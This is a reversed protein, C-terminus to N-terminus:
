PWCVHDGHRLGTPTEWQRLRAPCQPRDSPVRARTGTRCRVSLLAIDDDTRGLAIRTQLRDCLEELPQGALQELATTLRALGADIDSGGHEVLGDTYLLVTDGVDLTTEHTTRSGPLGTGLLREPPTALLRVGGDAQLIAPPLHGASSWRLTWPGGSALDASPALHALVATALTGVDLQTLAREVRTLTQAPSGPHDCAIGRLIGRIQGMAAAADM